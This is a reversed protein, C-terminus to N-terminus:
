LRRRTARKGVIQRKRFEIAADVEKLHPIRKPCEEVARTWKNLDLRSPNGGKDARYFIFAVIQSSTPLMGYALYFDRVHIPFTHQNAPPNGVARIKTLLKETHADVQGM